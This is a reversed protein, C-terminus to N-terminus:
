SSIDQPLSFLTKFGEYHLLNSQNVHLFKSFLGEREFFSCDAEITSVFSAYNRRRACQRLLPHSPGTLGLSCLVKVRDLSAVNSMPLRSLYYDRVSPDGSETFKSLFECQRKYNELRDHFNKIVIASHGKSDLFNQKGYLRIWQKEVFYRPTRYHYGNILVTPTAPSDGFYFSSDGIGPSCFTRARLSPDDISYDKTSYKVIYRVAKPSKILEFKTWGHTQCLGDRIYYVDLDGFLLGHFHLAGITVRAVGRDDIYERGKSGFESCVFRLPMKGGNLYRLRENWSRIFPTVRDGIGPSDITMNPWLHPDISITIFWVPIHEAVCRNYTSWIRVFWDNRRSRACEACHGCPVTINAGKFGYECAIKDPISIPCLCAM